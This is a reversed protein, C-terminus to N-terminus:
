RAFSATMPVVNPDGAHRLHAQIGFADEITRLLSYHNYPTADVFHRPGHNTIVITPIWGGDPGGGENEDFTIVIAVNGAKWAPSAMIERVLGGAVRDGRRILRGPNSYRCDEPTGPENSGHMDNCLNPVIMGFAPVDGEALDARLRDFGVLEQARHPDHQVSRFNIFGSHKAAYVDVNPPAAKGSPDAAVVALSGPSPISELYEKWRLHAAELQTALNAGDITHEAYAADDHMGFTSGGVLAVYNPESPHAEADFHSDLVYAHALQTLEPADASGIIRGYDKNEDMIVFVHDYRPVARDAPMMVALVAAILFYALRM